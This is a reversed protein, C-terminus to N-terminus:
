ESINMLPHNLIADEYRTEYYKYGVYIGETEVIYWNGKDNGPDIGENTYFFLGFNQMAPASISNTAYTDAIHGSPNVNGAIVDAVGYFGYAGPLGAWVIAGIGDDQKLEDIEMTVDSNLVVIIKGNSNQKALEIMAKENGSLGLPREFTDGNPDKMTLAYDSAESSDRSLFVIATTDKAADLAAQTYQDAPLEGIIYDTATEFMPWFVPILSHGPVEQGFFAAKRYFPKAADSNYLNLMEDNLAFGREKMADILTITKQGAEYNVSVTSGILGGFTPAISNLGWITVKDNAKNLPLVGNNKFLVTGEQSIEEALANKADVMDKLSTYDSEFYIGDGKSEGTKEMKYSTTGLFSNVKSANAQAISTAFLSLVFISALVVALGRKLGTKKGKM